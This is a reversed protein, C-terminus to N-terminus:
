PTVGITKNIVPNAYWTTNMIGGSEAWQQFQPYAVLISTKELPVRFNSYTFEVGWPLNTSTRYFAQTNKLPYTFYGSWSWTTPSADDETRLLYMNSYSTPPCGFARVQHEDEHTYFYYPLIEIAKIKSAKPVSFSFSVNKPTGSVGWDGGVNNYYPVIVQFIDDWFVIGNDMKADEHTYATGSTLSVTGAPLYYLKSGDRKFFEMGLGSPLSTSAGMAWIKSDITGSVVYNSSKVWTIKSAIILDNLDFDGIQPWLDEFIQYYYNSGSPDAKTMVSGSSVSYVEQSSAPFTEVFSKSADSPFDDYLDAVGDSDTDALSQYSSSAFSVPFNAASVTVKVQTSIGSVPDFVMVLTINRDLIVSFDAVGDEVVVRQLRIGDMDLLDVPQGNLVASAVGSLDTINVSLNYRSIGSWTFDDPVVLDEFTKVGGEPIDDQKVCSSLTILLVTL